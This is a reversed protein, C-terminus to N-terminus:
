RRTDSRPTDDTPTPHRPPLAGRRRPARPREPSRHRRGREAVKDRLADSIPASGANKAASGQGEPSVSTPFFGKVLEAVNAADQYEKCGILYSILVVPYAGAETTTRDIAIALDRRRPRGRVALRDVAKAAGEPSHSSSSTASRSGSRRHGGGAVLRRVRHHGRRGQRGRRRGLHGAAAEGGVARGAMGRGLRLDLRRARHRRPLRHLQGDHGVQGLPAGATM